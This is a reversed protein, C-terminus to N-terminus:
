PVGRKCGKTAEEMVLNFPLPSLASGQHVGDPIKLPASTDGAASVSSRADVYLAIVLRVLKELLLQRRFDWEIASHPVRDFTKELDIFM